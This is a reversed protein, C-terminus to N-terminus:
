QIGVLAAYVGARAMLEDHTGREVPQGRELVIIEDADRVTSLRHAIILCTCGRRRLNNDIQEETAPDLAATAEDLLLVAPNMVLVRALELRQKQGGSFNAGGEEVRAQLFGTRAAIEERICADELAQVLVPDPVSNDWLTLNDRVTGAFLFVEQDVHALRTSVHEPPIASVPMGDLLIRGSWPEYLGAILRGLTSKGSGSGGVLAVRSGPLMRLSLGDILPPDLPAHGFRLDEIVIEGKPPPLPVPPAADADGHGSARQWASPTSAASPASPGTQGVPQTVNRHGNRPYNAADDLRGLDARIAQIEGALNVLGTIPALFRAMLGQVAVLSGITLTGHMVRLGGIGLIAITTLVGMAGPVFMLLATTIGLTQRSALVHAQYGSFRTFADNEGGSSKLTEISRMSGSAAGLLKGQDQRMRRTVLERPSRCLRVALVNGLALLVGIAALLPDFFAIAAAFFVVSVLNVVNAALTGSLLQGIREAAGIRNVLDGVGRQLFFHIPLSLIQGMYRSAISLALTGELRLLYSQQLGTLLANIAGTTLVALVLLLAWDDRGPILVDDIFTRTLGPLVIGPLVLFLSLLGVLTVATRNPQLYRWLHSWSSPPSGGPTFAPGPEFALVVGTFAEDMEQRSVLRPGSAPDNIRLQKGQRGEYVVFHNFNWHIISPLPLEDLGEPSKRFGRAVMGYRSAVKILNSAKTGDRSVGALRRIEELPAWRGHYGLVMNLCAAGCETEEMQLVTPARVHRNRRPCWRGALGTM